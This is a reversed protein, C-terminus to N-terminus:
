GNRFRIFLIDAALGCTFMIAGWSFFSHQPEDDPSGLVIDGYKSFAIFISMIFMGFGLVIYFSGFRDGFLYRISDLVSKSEEPCIFFLICLAIVSLFPVVTIGWDIDKSKKM